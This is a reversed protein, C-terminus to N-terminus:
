FGEVVEVTRNNSGVIANIAGLYLETVSMKFVTNNSVELAQNIVAATGFKIFINAGSQNDVYLWKRAANAAIIQTSTNATLTTRTYTVNNAGIQPLYVDIPRITDYSRSTIANGANDSVIGVTRPSQASSAGLGYTIPGSSNGLQANARIGGSDAGFNSSYFAILTTMRQLLRKFLGNLGSTSTDTAAAAETEDGIRLGNETNTNNLTTLNQNNRKTLAILSATSTDTPAAPDAQAGLNTNTTSVNQAVRQMRGNLGSSATDTGPATENVEGTLTGFRQLFRKWLGNLGSTATDSAAASENTAGLRPELDDTNTNIANLQTTQSQQELLTAAGDPLVSHKVDVSGWGSSNIDWPFTPDGNSDSGYVQVHIDQFRPTVNGFASQLGLALFLPVAIINISKM